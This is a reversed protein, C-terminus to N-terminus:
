CCCCCCCCCWWWWWWWWRLACVAEGVSFAECRVDKLVASLEDARQQTLNRLTENTTMWGGCPSIELCNLYDYVQAYTVDQRLKGVPHIKDHMSQFLLLGDALGMVSLHSGAPLKTDLYEMAEQVNTRMEDPTTMHAIYDDIHGNCVDNGQCQQNPM